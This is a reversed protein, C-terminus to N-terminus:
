QWQRMGEISFAPVGRGSKRSPGPAPNETCCARPESSLVVGLGEVFDHLPTVDCIISVGM